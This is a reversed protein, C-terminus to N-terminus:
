NEEKKEIIEPARIELPKEEETKKKFKSELDIKEQERRVMELYQSRTKILALVLVLLIIVM